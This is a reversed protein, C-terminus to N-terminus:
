RGPVVRGLRTYEVLNGARCVQFLTGRPSPAIWCQKTRHFESAADPARAGPTGHVRTTTCGALGLTLGALMALALLRGAVAWPERATDNRSPQKTAIATM